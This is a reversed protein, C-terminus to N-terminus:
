VDRKSEKYVSEKRKDTIDTYIQTTAMHKHRLLEQVSRLDAGNILLDTAFSHRLVHPSIAATVGAVKACIRLRRRVQVEFSQLDALDPKNKFFIYDELRNQKGIAKIYEMLTMQAVGGILVWAEANGKGLVRMKDRQSLCDQVQLRGMESVRVGTSFLVRAFVRDRLAELPTKWIRRNKSTLREPDIVSVLAEIDEYTLTRPVRKEKKVKRRVDKAFDSPFLPHEIDEFCYRMFSRLSAMLQNQASASLYERGGRLSGAPKLTDMFATFDSRSYKEMPLPNSDVFIIFRNINKRYALVTHQSRGSSRLHNIFRNRLNLLTKAQDTKLQNSNLESLLLRGNTTRPGFIGPAPPVPSSEM